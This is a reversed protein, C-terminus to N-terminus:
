SSVWRILLGDEEGEVVFRSRKKIRGEIACILPRRSLTHSEAVLKRRPSQASERSECSQSLLLSKMFELGLAARKLSSRSDSGETESGEGHSSLSSGGVAVIAGGRLGRGLRRRKDITGSGLLRRNRTRCALILHAPVEDLLVISCHAATWLLDM